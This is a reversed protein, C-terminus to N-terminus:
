ESTAAVARANGGQRMIEYVELSSSVYFDTLDKVYVGRVKDEHVPLNDNQATPSRTLAKLSQAADLMSERALLDRIREMYIEMYSVKVLYEINGPSSMISAFIQETIRPIIGKMERDDIDPGMMTHSKGSGTQGYAFVTGNYGNM